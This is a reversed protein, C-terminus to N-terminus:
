QKVVKIEDVAAGFDTVSVDTTLRFQIKVNTQGAYANLNITKLPAWLNWNASQGSVNVLNTWTVGGDTSIRVQFFDFTAETSHKFAYTLTVTTAGSLNLTPTTMRADGNNGYNAGGPGGARWRWTGAFPSTSNRTWLTSATTNSFVLTTSTSEAGDYFVTVPGPTTVTLTLSASHTLTASTGSVTLTFTGTAATTAATLTLTSSATGGAAPTVPNASFAATVGAPLGSVSLTTASSFGNVSTITTTTSGSGGQVVSVSTPSVGITFDAVPTAQVVLTVSTTHTLSGSMGTITIPFSGTPTTTATAISLASSTGTAPNPSFTATAGAPLGSASLSVAGTFGGSPTITVTYGATNGQTVAASAPSASLAFDAAAGCSPFKFSGIRTSWNFTGNAKLYETTFWFTCDDVPDVTMASYDGWRSLTRLQSGAGPFMETEAQMTGVADGALRGTFRVSPRVTTSSVSYGMLMNGARDMGISGMWRHSADPSFTGQQFVAPASGPNRVEYWRVGAHGGVDVSHNVVLSEHDGFNRYALRYMLRDALSDLQQTTAPQSVCTGGNCAETFAVTSLKTPGTFTSNAPTLWDVHFKWLNLGNLGVDDFALFYNPSGASPPTAGDLDSPLLGGFTSSLQFCQMAAPTGSATLMQNRDLACAKGGLFATGAANFMNFTLYYGDPWVGVKPYDNFDTFQFSFRRFTGSADSTTSVAVCQFFQGGTVSFQTMVWRNAAKDYLVIPDGDNNAECPGGFGQWLTNGAAPGFVVAGTTKNFVAFSTNVWQVYQTAGVAGNTDPPASTV